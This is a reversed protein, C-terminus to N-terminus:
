GPISGPDGVHCASEKRDSGGTTCLVAGIVFIKDLWFEITNLLATDSKLAAAM